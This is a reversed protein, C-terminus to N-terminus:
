NKHRRKDIKFNGYSYAVKIETRFSFYFRFFYWARCNLYSKKERWEERKKYTKIKALECKKHQKSPEANHFQNAQRDCIGFLQIHFYSYFLITKIENSFLHNAFDFCVLQIIVLCVVFYAYTRETKHDIPWLPFNNVTYHSVSLYSAYM